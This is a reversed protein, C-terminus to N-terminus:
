RRKIVDAKMLREREELEQWFPSQLSSLQLEPLWSTLPTQVAMSVVQSALFQPLSPLAHEKSFPFPVHELECHEKVEQLSEYARVM